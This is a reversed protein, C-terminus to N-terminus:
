ILDGKMGFVDNIEEDSYGDLVMYVQPFEMTRGHNCKICDVGRKYNGEENTTDAGWGIGAEAGICYIPEITTSNQITVTGM